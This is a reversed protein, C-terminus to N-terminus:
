QRQAVAMQHGIGDIRIRSRVAFTRQDVVWIRQAKSSSVFLMGTGGVATLHYPAPALPLERRKGSVLDIATLKGEAKSTVFLTAGDDSLAVGHPMRGTPYTGTVRGETLAIVAVAGTAVNNVYLTKDDASLVLHEPAKGGTAIRRAVSWDATDIESVTGDGSNSVYAKRGDSSFVAYNPAAGTEVTKLWRFGRLDVVNVGGAGLQTAIAFRGDPSVAVHHVAGPVEVRRVVRASATDVISLDSTAVAGTAAAPKAHHKRHEAESMGKPRAPLAGASRSAVAISGAILYRGDPTVALGHVNGLGEIVSTVRNTAADIVQVKKAGGLPVYVDPLAAAANGGILVATALLAKASYIKM